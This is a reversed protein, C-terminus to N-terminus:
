DKRLPGIGALVRLRELDDRLSGIEKSQSNIIAMAGALDNETAIAFKQGVGRRVGNKPM